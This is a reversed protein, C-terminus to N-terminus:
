QVLFYKHGAEVDPVSSKSDHQTSIAANIPDRSQLYEAILNNLSANYKEIPNQIELQEIIFKIYILLIFLCINSKHNHLKIYNIFSHYYCRRLRYQEAVFYAMIGFM